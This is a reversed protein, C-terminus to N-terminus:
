ERTGPGIRPWHEPSREDTTQAVPVASGFDALVARSDKLSLLINSAISCVVCVVCVCCVCVVRSQIIDEEEHQEQGQTDCDYPILHGPPCAV